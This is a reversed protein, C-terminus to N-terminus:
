IRCSGAWGSTGTGSADTCSRQFARADKVTFRLWSSRCRIKVQSASATAIGNSTSSCIRLCPQLRRAIVEGICSPAPLVVVAQFRASSSLRCRSKREVSSSVSRRSGEAWLKKLGTWVVGDPVDTKMHGTALSQALPGLLMPSPEIASRRRLLKAITRTVGRRAGNSFVRVTEVGHGRYGRDVFAMDPRQDTLIEM